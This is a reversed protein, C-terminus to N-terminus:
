KLTLTKEMKALFKAGHGADKYHNKLDCIIKVAERLSKKLMENENNLIDYTAEAGEIYGCRLTEVESNIENHDRKTLMKDGKDSVPYSNEVMENAISSFEKKNM